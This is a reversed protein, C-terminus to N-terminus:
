RVVVGGFRGIIKGSEFITVDGKWLNGEHARMGVHTEYTKNEDIPELLQMSDWGHNIFVEKTLDVGENANMVFGGLQSLADIYAPNTHFNGGKKVDTFSVRGCAEFKDNDLTIEVLGRYNPDFDALQAIMKYIMSKSFRYTNGRESIQKQISNMRTQIFMCEDKLQAFSRKADFFRLVCNSHQEIVKGNEQSTDTVSVLFIPKRVYM